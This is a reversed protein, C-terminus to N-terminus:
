KKCQCHLFAGLKADSNSHVRLTCSFVPYGIRVGSGRFYSYSDRRPASSRFSSPSMSASSSRSHIFIRFQGSHKLAQGNAVLLLILLLLHAGPGRPQSCSTMERAKVHCQHQIKQWITRVKRHFIKVNKAVDARTRLSFSPRPLSPTYLVAKEGWKRDRPKRKLSGANGIRRDSEFSPFRYAFVKANPM